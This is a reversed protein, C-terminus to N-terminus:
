IGAKKKFLFAYWKKQKAIRVCTLAGSRFRRRFAPYNTEHIGSLALYQGPRVCSILKTKLRVLDETLLNAAVLDFSRHGRLRELSVVRAEGISCHNFRFNKLATRISGRDRDIARIDEAGCRAAVLSLIGSGTGVDFFSKVDNRRSAIFRAMMRTTPHMGTGFAFMTDIYLARPDKKGRIGKTSLPVICIDPTIYFPKFYKKWRTKWQADRLEKCSVVVGALGLSRIRRVVARAKRSSVTFLSLREGSEGSEEVIDEEAVGCRILVLRLLELQGQRRSNLALKVAFM